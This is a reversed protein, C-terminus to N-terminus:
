KKRLLDTSHKDKCGEIACIYQKVKSNEKGMYTDIALEVKATRGVLPGEYVWTSPDDEKFKEPDGDWNGPIAYQGNGLDEIELGFAHSFDLQTFGAKSSLTEYVKVGDYEPNEQVEMQANFNAGDQNKNMKPRFGKLALTYIGNPATKGGASPDFGMKFAM